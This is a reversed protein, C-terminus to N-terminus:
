ELNDDEGRREPADREALRANIWNEVEILLWGVRGAGLRLRKPFKGARELRAIHTMTYPVLEGLEKRSIIILHHAFSHASGSRGSQVQEM